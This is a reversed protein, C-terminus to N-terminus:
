RALRAIVHQCAVQEVVAQLMSVGDHDQKRAAVARRERSKGRLEHVLQDAPREFVGLVGVRRQLRRCLQAEHQRAGVSGEQAMDRGCQQAEGLLLAHAAHDGLEGGVMLSAQLAQEFGFSSGISLRAV